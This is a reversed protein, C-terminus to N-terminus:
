FVEVRDVSVGQPAFFEKFHKLRAEYGGIVQDGATYYAKQMQNKMYASMVTSFTGMPDTGIQDLFSTLNGQEIHFWVKVTKGNTVETFVEAEYLEDNRINYGDFSM